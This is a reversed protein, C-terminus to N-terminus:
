RGFLRAMLGRRHGKAEATELAKRESVAHLTQSQETIRTLSTIQADKVELQGRLTEVEASLDAIHARLAETLAEGAADQGGAHDQGSEASDGECPGESAELGAAILRCYAASESEGDAVARRVREALEADIRLSKHVKAM